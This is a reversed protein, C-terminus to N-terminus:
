CPQVFQPTGFLVFVSNFLTKRWHVFVDKSIIKQRTECMKFFLIFRPYFKKKIGEVNKKANRSLRFKIKGILKPHSNQRGELFPRATKRFCLFNLNTGEKKGVWFWVNALKPEEWRQHWSWFWCIGFFLGPVKKAMFNKVLIIKRRRFYNRFIQSKRSQLYLASLGLVLWKPATQALKTLLKLDLLHM